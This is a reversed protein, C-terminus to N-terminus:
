RGGSFVRYRLTEHARLHTYSVPMDIIDAQAESNAIEWGDDWGENYYHQAVGDYSADYADEYGTDYGEQYRISLNEEM